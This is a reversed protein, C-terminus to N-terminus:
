KLLWLKARVLFSHFSMFIAVIFGATGDLFGRKLFYNVFFKGVPYIIISPWGADNHRPTQTYLEQARINTYYNIEKLFETINQHPYHLLPNTLEGVRGKVRWAEHVKGEWRGADKRALRLLKLNGTEGHELKKGWMFDVRKILYAAIESKSNRIESKIEDRLASSIVEDADVFLVWEGNAKELGFNRQSAFDDDLSRTFVKARVRKALEVTKDDSNSDIVIVEDCFSLSEICDVINKEENKTLVVASIM